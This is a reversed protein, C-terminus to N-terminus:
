NARPESEASRFMVSRFLVRFIQGLTVWTRNIQADSVNQHCIAVSNKSIACHDCHPAYLFSGDSKGTTRNIVGYSRGKRIWKMNRELTPNELDASRIASNGTLDFGLHPWSMVYSLLYRCSGLPTVKQWIVTARTHKYSKPLIFNYSISPPVTEPAGHAM